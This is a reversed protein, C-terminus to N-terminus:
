LGLETQRKVPLSANIVIQEDGFDHLIPTIGDLVWEGLQERLWERPQDALLAGRVIGAELHVWAKM